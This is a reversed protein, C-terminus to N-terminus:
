RPRPRGHEVRHPHEPVAQVVPPRPVRPRAQQRRRLTWPLPVTSGAPLRTGACPGRAALSGPLHLGACSPDGLPGLRSPRFGVSRTEGHGQVRGEQRGPQSGRGTPATGMPSSFSRDTRGEAPPPDVRAHPGATRTCSLFTTRLWQLVPEGVELAPAAAWPNARQPPSPGLGNGTFRSGSSVPTAMWGHNRAGTRDGDALQVLPRQVPGQLRAVGDAAARGLLGDVAEDRVHDGAAADDLDVGALKRGKFRLSGRSSSRYGTVSACGTARSRYMTLIGGSGLAGGDRRLDGFRPDTKSTKVASTLMGARSACGLRVSSTTIVTSSSTRAFFPRPLQRRRPQAMRSRRSTSTTSIWAMATSSGVQEGQEVGIQGLPERGAVERRGHPRRPSEALQGREAEALAADGLDAAPLARTYRRTSQAERGTVSSRPAGHTDDDFEVGPDGGGAARHRRRSDAALVVVSRTCGPTPQRSSRRELVSM